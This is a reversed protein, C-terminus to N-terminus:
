SLDGVRECIIDPWEEQDMDGLVAHDPYKGSLVFVTGMGLRKATVLDGPPNDSIFLAESSDTGVRKLAERYIREAPKGVCIARGGPCLPELAGCWAGPGLRRRGEHDLFYLNRHLAILEAGHDVLAPLTRDLDVTKLVTSAGLVVADCPGENVVEFGQDRWYSVLHPDGLWMIRVKGWRALLDSGIALATVLQEPEVQFGARALQGCLESPTHTTNNSVLCWNIGRDALGTYWERATEIATYRKDRVLVGEIDILYTRFNREPRM